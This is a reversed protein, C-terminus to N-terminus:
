ALLAELEGRSPAPDPPLEVSAAAAIREQIGPRALADEPLTFCAAIERAVRYVEPDTAVAKSFVDSGPAPETTGTRISEMEALRRRDMRLTSEHWKAVTSETAGHWAEFLDLPHDLLGAMAPVTSTAHMLAMTIGRGVSPNTCGWSDGMPVLGTVIPSGERSFHRIRDLVGGMTIVDSIPEGELWRARGPLAAVVRSFVSTDKVARMAKDATTAYLTVSWTRNDGVLVLSSISGAAELSSHFPRPVDEGDRARFFRGYYVFRSDESDEAPSTAGAQDLLRPVPSRRGGADVVLDSELLTGDDLRVGSVHPIGDVVSPGTVLETVSRGRRIDVSRGEAARAFAMEYVPRRAALVDLRDDGPRPTRDTITPPMGDMGSIRMAGATELESSVDPLHDDLLQRGGAILTHGMRFQAIGPREWAEWAETADAPPPTPDKEVVTVDVGADAFLMATSLGTPGGGIITVGGM